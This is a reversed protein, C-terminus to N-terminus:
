ILPNITPISGDIGSLNLVTRNLIQFLAAAKLCPLRPRHDREDWDTNERSLEEGFEGPKPPASM